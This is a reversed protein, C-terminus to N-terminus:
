QLTVLILFKSNMSQFTKSKIQLTMEQPLGGGDIIVDKLAGFMDAFLYTDHIMFSNRTIQNTDKNYDFFILFPNEKRINEDEIFLLDEPKKNLFNANAVEFNLFIFIILFLYKM